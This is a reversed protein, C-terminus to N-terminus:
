SAGTRLLGSLSFSDGPTTMGQGISGFPRRSALHPKAALLAEVAASLAEDDELHTEDFVLDTPDQLRGTAAVLTTHLRQALADAQQARTRYKGNEKRLEEVYSRPFTEAEEAPDAPTEAPDGPSEVPAELPDGTPDESELEPDTVPETPVILDDEDTKPM